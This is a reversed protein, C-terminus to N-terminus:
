TPGDVFSRVLPLTREPAEEQPVHGLDGFALLRAQPMVALYDRATAFPILKDKEGWVLLTPVQIRRLMPEPPVLWLQATRDLLAQRNGPALMLDRYRDLTADSLRKPDGYALALNARLLIRPLTYPLVHALAPIDPKKEYEFGASAFGDPSILVLKSVLAPHDAAFMWAFKAGLSNGVFVARRIALTDMLGLIIQMTRADSYDGTPEPGTLGFGPLDFRIVRDRTSLAEAWPEWTHLSSGLGHLMIVARGGRPGTDRVHLRIGAVWVFESPPQGYQAELATRQKDPDHLWAGGATLLAAVLAIVWVWTM